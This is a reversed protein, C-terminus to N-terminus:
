NNNLYIDSFGKKLGEFVENIDEKTIMNIKMDYLSFIKEIKGLEIIQYFIALTEIEEKKWKIKSLKKLEKKLPLTIVVGEVLDEVYALIREEKTTIDDPSNGWEIWPQIDLIFHDLPKDIPSAYNYSGRNINDKVLIGNKDYVAEQHGDKSLYVVNGKAGKLNHIHVEPNNKLFLYIIAIKKSDIKKTVISQKIVELKHISDSNGIDRSFCYNSICYLLLIIIMKKM